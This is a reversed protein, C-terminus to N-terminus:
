GYDAWDEDKFIDPLAPCDGAKEVEQALIQKVLFSTINTQQNTKINKKQWNVVESIKPWKGFPATM